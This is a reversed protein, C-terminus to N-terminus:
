GCYIKLDHVNVWRGKGKKQSRSPESKAFHAFLETQQLLYKLGGKGRNNMDADISANQADLIDQIKKKKLKQMERLRAKERKSIEAKEEDEEDEDADDEVPVVEDDCAPAEEDSDASRAVAQLEDDDDEGVNVQDNVQARGFAKVVTDEPESTGRPKENYIHIERWRLKRFNGGQVKSPWYPGHASIWKDRWIHCAVTSIGSIGKNLAFCALLAKAYLPPHFHFKSKFFFFIRIEECTEEDSRITTMALDREGM